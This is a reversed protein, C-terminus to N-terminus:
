VDVDAGAAIQENIELGVDLLAHQRQQMERELVTARQEEASRFSRARQLAHELRKVGLLANVAADPRVALTMRLHGRAVAARRPM